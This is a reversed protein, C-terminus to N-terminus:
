KNRSSQQGLWIMGAHFLPLDSSYDVNTKNLASGAKESPTHTSVLILMRFSWTHCATWLRVGHGDFCKLRATRTRNTDKLSRSNMERKSEHLGDKARHASITCFLTLCLRKFTEQRMPSVHRVYSRISLMFDSGSAHCIAIPLCISFFTDM